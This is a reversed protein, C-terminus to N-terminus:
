RRDASFLRCLRSLLLEPRGRCPAAKGGRHLTGGHATSFLGAGGAELMYTLALPGLGVFLGPNNDEPFSLEHHHAFDPGWDVYVYSDPEVTGAEAKTTVLVLKLLLEVRAGPWTWNSCLSFM